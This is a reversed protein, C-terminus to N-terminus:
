AFKSTKGKKPPLKTWQHLVPDGDKGLRFGDEAAQAAPPGVRGYLGATLLISGIIFSVVSASVDYNLFDLSSRSLPLMFLGALMFVAAGVLNINRDVNRGILMGALIILGVLVSLLSFAMNTRLGWAKTDGQDFFPDGWSRAVGTLGFGLLYVGTAGSLVRYFPRLRHNMPLHTAM